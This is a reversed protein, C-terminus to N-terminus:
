RTLFLIWIQNFGIIPKFVASSRIMFVGVIEYISHIICGSFPIIEDYKSVPISHLGHKMSVAEYLASWNLMQMFSSSIELNVWVHIVYFDGDTIYFLSSM